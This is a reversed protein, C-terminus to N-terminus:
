AQETEEFFRREEAQADLSVNERGSRHGDGGFYRGM